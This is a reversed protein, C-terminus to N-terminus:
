KDCVAAVAWLPQSIHAAKGVLKVRRLAVPIQNAVVNWHTSRGKDDVAQMEKCRMLM